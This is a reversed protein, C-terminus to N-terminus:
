IDGFNRKFSESPNQYIHSSHTKYPLLLVIVSKNVLSVKWIKFHLKIILVPRPERYLEYYNHLASMATTRWQGTLTYLPQTKKQQTFTLPSLQWSFQLHSYEGQALSDCRCYMNYQRLRKRWIGVTPAKTACVTTTLGFILFTRFLNLLERM